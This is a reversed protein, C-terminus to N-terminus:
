YPSSRLLGAPQRWHDPKSKYCLSASKAWVETPQVPQSMSDNPTEAGGAESRLMGTVASGASSSRAGPSGDVGCDDGPETSERALSTDLSDAAAAAATVIEEEQEQMQQHHQMLQQVYSAPYGYAAYANAILMMNAASGAGGAVIQQQYMLQQQLQQQYVLQQYLALNNTTSDSSAHAATKADRIRSLCVASPNRCDTLSGREMVEKQVQSSAERLSGAAVGDIENERIFHEVDSDSEARAGIRAAFAASERAATIRGM